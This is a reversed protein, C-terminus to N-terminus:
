SVSEYRQASTESVTKEPNYTQLTFEVKSYISESLLFGSKKPPKGLLIHVLDRKYGQDFHKSCVRFSKPMKNVDKRRCLTRWIKKQKIDTPSNHFLCDESSPIKTGARTYTSTQVSQLLM